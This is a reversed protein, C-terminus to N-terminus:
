EGSSIRKERDDERSKARRLIGKGETTLQLISLQKEPSDGKIRTPGKQKGCAPSPAADPLFSSFPATSVRPGLLMEQKETGLSM